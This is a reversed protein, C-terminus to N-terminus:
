TFENYIFKGESTNDYVLKSVEDLVHFRFQLSKNLENFPM